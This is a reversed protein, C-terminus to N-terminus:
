WTTETIRGTEDSGVDYYHVAAYGEGADVTMWRVDGGYDPERQHLLHRALVYVVGNVTESDRGLDAKVHGGNVFVTNGRELVHQVTQYNLVYHYVGSHRTEWDHKLGRHKALPAHAFVFTPIEPDDDMLRKLMSVQPASVFNQAETLTHYGEHPNTDLFVYRAGDDEFWYYLPYEEAPFYEQYLSLPRDLNGRITYYEDLREDFLEKALRWDEHYYKNDTEGHWGGWDTKGHIPSILHRLDGGILTWDVGVEHLKDIAAEVVATGDHAGDAIHREPDAAIHPDFILGITRM